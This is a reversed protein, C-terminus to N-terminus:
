VFAVGRFQQPNHFMTRIAKNVITANTKEEHKFFGLSLRVGPVRSTLSNPRTNDDSPAATAPARTKISSIWCDAELLSAEPLKESESEASSKFKVKFSAMGAAMALPNGGMTTGHSGPTLFDAVKPSAVVAGVPLGGGIAKALTFIDPKIDFHEHCYIKGTRGVGVQVEDFILLINNKKCLKKVNKLYNDDPIIIGAEGQIPEVM